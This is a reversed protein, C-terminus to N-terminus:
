EELSEIIKQIAFDGYGYKKIIERIKDKSISNYNLFSITDLDNEYQKLAENIIKEYEKNKEKLKKNEKRCEKYFVLLTKIAEELNAKYFMDNQFPNVGSYEELIKIAEKCNM